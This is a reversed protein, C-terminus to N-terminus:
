TPPPQLIVVLSSSGFHVIEEDIGPSDFFFAPATRLGNRVCIPGAAPIRFQFRGQAAFLCSPATSISRTNASLFRLMKSRQVLRHTKLAKGNGTGRLCLMVSQVEVGVSTSAQVKECRQSNITMQM